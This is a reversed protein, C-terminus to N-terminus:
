AVSRRRTPKAVRRRRQEADVMAEAYMVLRDLWADISTADAHLQPALAETVDRGIHLHLGLAAICVALAQVERDAGELCLRVCLAAVLSDHLPKVSHAIGAQWLGTPEIMERMHLKMCLRALDGQKLPEVFGAYFDRLTAHFSAPPPLAVAAAAEPLRLPGDFVARYLGAKDGFYYSIAALNAGAAEAIERTSTRAYGKRAFLALAAQLLRERSQEGDRRQARPSGAIQVHM